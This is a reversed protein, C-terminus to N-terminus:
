AVEQSTPLGCGLVGLLAASPAPQRVPTLSGALGFAGACRGGYLNPCSFLAPRRQAGSKSPVGIGTAPSVAVRFVTSSVGVYTLGTTTRAQRDRVTIFDHLNIVNNSEALATTPKSM